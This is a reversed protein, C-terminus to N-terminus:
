ASQGTRPNFANYLGLGALGLGGYQSIPNPAPQTQYVSRDAQVPIGHMISSLWNVSQRDYDRQNIFDQYALDRAYQELAQQQQGQDRLAAMRELFATQDDLSLAGLQQGAMLQLQNYDLGGQQNALDIQYALNARNQRMDGQYQRSMEGLEQASLDLQANQLQAQQNAQAIQAALDAAFKRYDGGYQRSQERFQEESLGLQRGFQRSTEELEAASLGLDGFYQNARDRLEAAQLAAQQNAQQVGMRAARDREFQQQANEFAAQRGQVDIGSMRDLLGEEALYDGVAQRSGGFAGAQVAEADRMLAQRNHDQLAQEKAWDTVGEMYPSMYQDRTRADFVGAPDLREAEYDTPNYLSTADISLPDYAGSSYESPTYKGLRNYAIRQPIMRAQQADFTGPKYELWSLPHQRIQPSYNAAWDGAAQTYDAAQQMGPLGTRALSQIGSFAGLQDTNYGAIRPQNYPTYPTRALFSATEMMDLYYPEAYEPLNSTYNTSTTEGGGSGGGFRPVSDWTNYRFPRLLDM